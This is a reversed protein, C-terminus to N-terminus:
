RLPKPTKKSEQFAQLAQQAEENKGLKRYVQFLNYHAQELNPDLEVAQKLTLGALKDGLTKIEGSVEMTATDSM